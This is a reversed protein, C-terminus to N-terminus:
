NEKYKKPVNLLLDDVPDKCTIYIYDYAIAALFGYTVGVLVWLIPSQLTATASTIFVAHMSVITAFLLIALIQELAPKHTYANVPKYLSSPLQSEFNM